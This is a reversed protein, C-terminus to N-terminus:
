KTSEELLDIDKNTRKDPPKELISLVVILKQDLNLNNIGGGQILISKRM